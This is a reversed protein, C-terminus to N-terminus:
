GKDAAVLQEIYASAAIGLAGARRKITEVTAASLSYCAQIRSEDETVAGFIQEYDDADLKEEAWAKADTYSMPMIRSGGSWSNQGTAQAYCTAPGGEGYLFYEGTKKRYLTEEVHSFDRWSGANSWTALAKARETDYVKGNIIKKM